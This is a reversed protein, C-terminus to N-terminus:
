KRLVSVVIPDVAVPVRRVIKVVRRTRGEIPEVVDSVCRKEELSFSQDKECEVCRLRNYDYYRPLKCEVCSTYNTFPVSAPCM